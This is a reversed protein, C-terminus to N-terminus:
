NKSPLNSHEYNIIEVVKDSQNFLYEVMKQFREPFTKKNEQTADPGIATMLITKPNVIKQPHYNIGIQQKTDIRTFRIDTDIKANYFLLNRRNFDGTPLGGFGFDTTAGTINSLVSGVVGANDQTPPNKIEVIIEGRIPIKDGYLAKLGKLACIYAGGVVSCSHGAMKVTDLYTIEIIGNKSTGIFEGLPDKLIISQIQDFFKPYNMVQKQSSLNLSQIEACYPQSIFIFLSFPFFIFKLLKLKKTIKAM